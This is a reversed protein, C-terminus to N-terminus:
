VGDNALSAAELCAAVVHAREGSTLEPFIPLSLEHAAWEEAAPVPQPLRARGALAAHEPMAPTYHFGTQVGNAALRAATADRDPVRVPFLHYVCPSAPTEELLGLHGDFATRYAVAHERRAANAAELHALKVRLLAAQLGDLRENYGTLEHRGRRRQGLDRLARVRAALEGDSTCVAGGDGLAGLNKSPYFSFCAVTGLSGSRRGDWTAGHAQAADEIIALGRRAALAGVAGMDCTQGYLHVAMIAATRETIVAEAAAADILGTGPLVDCLVPTAGAHIVALASAVFTHAPVIVEEGCGIGLAEIALTLAATGSAVGVCHEVGCFVAWEAEFAAVEDGLIFASADVVREFASSLESRLGAHTRDLAVLPVNLM